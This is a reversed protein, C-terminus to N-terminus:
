GGVYQAALSRARSVETTGDILMRGDRFVTLVIDQPLTLRVFFRSQQVQGLGIWSEGLRVLDLSAAAVAPLQVSNRGCVATGTAAAPADLFDFQRQVCARCDPSVAAAMDIQRHRNSWFDFSWLSTRVAARNGSLWKIAETAQLSAIAHTASGLVGVTDCTAVSTASPLEPVLCRFCPRGLGSFFAVQGVTGVCGGHVWAVQRSLSCDNLLLRLAFNDAADIVLDAGGLLESINDATVDCVHPQCDIQSNILGLRQSVVEAKALGQAADAEYFLAQRQLNTWDVVDRDILRLQGVGARALIEAAVSGLAGCGLVAVCSNSILQQGDHGIGPLRMQRDYRALPSPQGSTADTNEQSM